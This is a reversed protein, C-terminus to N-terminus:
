TLPDALIHTVALKTYPPVDAGALDAVHRAIVIDALEPNTQAAIRDLILQRLDAAPLASRFERAFSVQSGCRTILFGPRGALETALLGTEEGLERAISAGIDVTGDAAIDCHDIFGGPLYVLGSNINGATQRGLFVHGERSRLIVSGFGDYAHAEPFGHDKWYLFSKFDTKYFSGVFADDVIDGTRLVLVVGNFFGPNTRCRATWHADIAAAQDTAFAWARESVTLRCHDVRVTSPEIM